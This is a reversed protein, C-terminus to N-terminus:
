VFKEPFYEYLIKVLDGYSHSDLQGKTVYYVDDQEVLQQACEFALKIKAYEETDYVDSEDMVAAGSNVIDSLNNESIYTLALSKWRCPEIVIKVPKDKELNWIKDDTIEFLEYVPVICIFDPLEFYMRDKALYEYKVIFKTKYRHQHM